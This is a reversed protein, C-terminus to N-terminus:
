DRKYEVSGHFTETKIEDNELVINGLEDRLLVEVWGDNGTKCKRVTNGPVEQGDLFVHNGKGHYLGNPDNTGGNITWDYVYSNSM